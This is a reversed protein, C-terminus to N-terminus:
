TRQRTPAQEIRTKGECHHCFADEHIAGLVWEQKNVDWEAWAERTVMESGCRACVMRIPGDVM